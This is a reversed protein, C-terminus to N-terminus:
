SNFTNEPMHPCRIGLDAQADACDSWSRWQESGYDSSVISHMMPFCIGPHSQARTTHIQIQANQVHEFTCKRKARSM